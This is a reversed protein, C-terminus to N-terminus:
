TLRLSHAPSVCTAPSSDQSACAKESACANGLVMQEAQGLCHPLAQCLVTEGEPEAPSVSEVFGRRDWGAVPFLVGLLQERGMHGLCMLVAVSQPIGRLVAGARERECLRRRPAAGLVAGRLAARM